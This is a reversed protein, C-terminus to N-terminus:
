TAINLAMLTADNQLLLQQNLKPLGILIEVLTLLTWPLSGSVLSLGVKSWTTRHLWLQDRTWSRGIILLLRRSDFVNPIGDGVFDGPWLIDLLYEDAILENLLLVRSRECFWASLLWTIICCPCTSMVYRIDFLELPVQISSTVLLNPGRCGDGMHFKSGFLHLVYPLM